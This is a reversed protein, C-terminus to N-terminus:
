RLCQARAVLVLHAVFHHGDTAHKRASVGDKVSRLILNLQRVGRVFGEVHAVHAVVQRQQVHVIRPAIRVEGHIPAVFVKHLLPRHFRRAIDSFLELLEDLADLNLWRGIRVIEVADFLADRTPEKIVRRFQLLVPAIARHFVRLRNGNM